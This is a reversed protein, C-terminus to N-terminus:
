QQTTTVPVPKDLGALSRCIQTQDRDSTPGLIACRAAQPDVGQSILTALTDLRQKEQVSAQENKRIEAQYRAEQQKTVEAEIETDDLGGIMSCSAMTAVIVCLTIAILKSVTRILYSEHARQEAREEETLDSNYM